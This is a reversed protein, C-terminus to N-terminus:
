TVKAIYLTIEVKKKICEVDEIYLRLLKEAMKVEKKVINIMDSQLSYKGSVEQNRHKIKSVDADKCNNLTTVDHSYMKSNEPISARKYKSRKYNQLSSHREKCSTSVHANKRGGNLKNELNIRVKKKCCVNKSLVKIEVKKLNEVNKRRAKVRQLIKTNITKLHSTLLRTNGLLIFKDPFNTYKEIFYQVHKENSLDLNQQMHIDRIKEMTYLLQQRIRCATDVYTIFGIKSYKKYPAPEIRLCFNQVFMHVFKDMKFMPVEFVNSIM